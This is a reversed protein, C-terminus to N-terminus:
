NLKIGRPSYELWKDFSEFSVVGLTSLSLILLYVTVQLVYMTADCNCRVGEKLAYSYYVSDM